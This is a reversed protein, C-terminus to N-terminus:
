VEIVAVTMVERLGDDTPDDIYEDDIRVIITGNVDRDSEIIGLEEPCDETAPLRVRLGPVVRLPDM